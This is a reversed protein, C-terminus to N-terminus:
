QILRIIPPAVIDPNQFQVYAEHQPKNALLKRLGPTNSTPTNYREDSILQYPETEQVIEAEINALPLINNNHSNEKQIQTNTNIIQVNLKNQLSPEINKPKFEQNALLIIQVPAKLQKRITVLSTAIEKKPETAPKERKEKIKKVTEVDSVNLPNHTQIFYEDMLYDGAYILSDLTYSSLQKVINMIEFTLESPFHAIGWDLITANFEIMLDSVNFIIRSGYESVSYARNLVSTLYIVSFLYLAVKIKNNKIFVIGSATKPILKNLNAFLGWLRKYIPAINLLDNWMMQYVILKEKINTLNVPDLVTKHLKTDEIIPGFLYKQFIEVFLKALYIGFKFELISKLVKTLIRMHRDLDSFILQMRAHRNNDPIFVAKQVTKHNLPLSSPNLYAPIKTSYVYKIRPVYIIFGYNNLIAQLSTLFNDICENDNIILNMEDKDFSKFIELNSNFYHKADVVPFLYDIIDTNLLSLKSFSKSFASKAEFNGIEFGNNNNYKNNESKNDLVYITSQENNLIEDIYLNYTPDQIKNKYFKYFLFKKNINFRPMKIIKQFSLNNADSKFNILKKYKDM